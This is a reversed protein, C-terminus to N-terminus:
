VNVAMISISSFDAVEISLIEYEYDRQNITFALKEGVKKGLLKSAFPSLHSLVGKDPNSEWPGMINFIESEGSGLNKLTAVTGFSIRDAKVDEPKIVQVSQLEEEWKRATTNLIEQREKAAKYEANEKLDGYERAAAIEKSNKPVEV